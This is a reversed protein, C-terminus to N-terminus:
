NGSSDSFSVWLWYPYSVLFPLSLAVSVLLAPVLRSPPLGLSTTKATIGFLYRPFNLTFELPGSNKALVYFRNKTITLFKGVDATSFGKKVTQNHYLVAKPEYRLRGGNKTLRLSLDLDEAYAFLNADFLPEEGVLANRRIFCAGGSLFDTEAPKNEVKLYEAYGGKNLRYEFCPAGEKPLSHFEDLTMVWPMIMNCNVGVVSDVEEFAKVGATIFGEKIITDQNLLTIIDGTSKEFAINCGKVFGLNKKQKVIDVWPHEKEVYEVSGDTSRNDVMITEVQCKTDDQSKISPLLAKLHNIGNFTVILISIKM